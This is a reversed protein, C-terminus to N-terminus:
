LGVWGDKSLVPRTPESHMNDALATMGEEEFDREVSWELGLVRERFWGGARVM